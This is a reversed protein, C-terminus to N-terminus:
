TDFTLASGGCTANIHQIFLTTHMRNVGALTDSSPTVAVAVYNHDLTIPKGKQLRVIRSETDVFFIDVNRTSTKKLLLVTSVHQRAIKFFSCWASSLSAKSLHVNTVLPQKRQCTNYRFLPVPTSPKAYCLADLVCKRSWNIYISGNRVSSYTLYMGEGPTFIGDLTQVPHIFQSHYNEQNVLSNRADMDFDHSIKRITENTNSIPSTSKISISDQSVDTKISCETSGPSNLSTKTIYAANASTESVYSLLGNKRKYSELTDFDNSLTKSNLCAKFGITGM